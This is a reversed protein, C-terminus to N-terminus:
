LEFTINIEVIFGSGRHTWRFDALPSAFVDYNDYHIPIIYKSYQILVQQATGQLGKSLELKHLALSRANM